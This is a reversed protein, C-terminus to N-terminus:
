YTLRGELSALTRDRRDSVLAAAHAAAEVVARAVDRADVRHLSQAIWLGSMGGQWDVEVSVLGSPHTVRARATSLQHLADELSDLGATARAVAADMESGSM